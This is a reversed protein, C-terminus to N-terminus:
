GKLLANLKEGFAKEQEPTLVPVTYRKLGKLLDPPDLPVDSRTIQRGRKALYTHVESSAMFNSLLKAANPHPADKDTVVKGATIVTVPQVAIWDVPAGDRKGREAQNVYNNLAVAYEGAALKDSMTGHGDIITVGNTKVIDSILKDTRAEGLTDVLGKYWEVDSNDAIIQGKFQPKTLDDYSTIDTKKVKATNIMIMNWNTYISYWYGGKDKYDDAILSANPPYYKLAVGAPVLLNSTTTAVVDFNPKKAQAETLIRSILADESGRIYNLKIKPFEKAWIDLFGKAEKENISSYLNVETENAAVAADYLKKTEAAEDFKAASAAATATAAASAAAATTPSSTAPASTGGCATVVFATALTLTALRHIGIM